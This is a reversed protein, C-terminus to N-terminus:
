LSIAKGGAASSTESAKLKLVAQDQMLLTVLNDYVDRKSKLTMQMSVTLKPNEESESARNEVELEVIVAGSEKVLSSIRGLHGGGDPLELMLMRKKQSGQFVSTDVKNLVFLSILAAITSIVAGFYFGAGVALGIAAVVWLSAATTLGAVTAGTRMITGAGLFGIGSIVQAALRAPDMRVNPEYAFQSFGYSSLLVVLASGVCVLIHTRFGAPHDGAERELGIAGGLILAVFIRLSLEWYSIEWVEPNIGM